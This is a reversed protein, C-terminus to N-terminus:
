RRLYFMFLRCDPLELSSRPLGPPAGMAGLACCAFTISQVVQCKGKGCTRGPLGGGEDRSLVKSSASPGTVSEIAQSGRLERPQLSLSCLNPALIIGYRNLRNMDRILQPWSITALFACNRGESTAAQGKYKGCSGACWGAQDATRGTPCCRCGAASLSKPALLRCTCLVLCYCIM